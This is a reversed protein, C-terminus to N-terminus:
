SIWAERVVLGLERTDTGAGEAAPVIPRDVEITVELVRPEARPRIPYEFETFHPVATHIAGVVEEDVLVRGELPEDRHSPRCLALGVATAGPPAMLYLTARRATWRVCPPWDEVPYWGEGLCPEDHRGAVMRSPPRSWRVHSAAPLPRAARAGLLMVIPRAMSGGAQWTHPLAVLGDGAADGSSAVYFHLVGCRMDFPATWAAGPWVGASLVYNGELLPLAHYHCAVEGSGQQVSIRLADADTSTSHVYAHDARHLGIGFSTDPCAV